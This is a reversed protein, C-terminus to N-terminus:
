SELEWGVLWRLLASVDAADVVGDGNMDVLRKDWEALEFGAHGAVHRAVWVVDASSVSEGRNTIAGLRLWQATVVMNELVVGFDVDWGDFIWGSRVVEPAFAAGYRPVAQETEGGCIRTGGNLHFIVTYDQRTKNLNFYDWGDDDVVQVPFNSDANTGDGLQGYWNYGWTWVTGDNKVAVTHRWGASVEAVGSIGVVQVPTSSDYYTGDGLQGGWNIGWAWVTGDGKLAVSYSGGATIATVEYLGVVQVPMLRNDFTGDGLQGMSNYGWAWATGDNKVAVTHYYGASIATVGDLGVAQVPTRSENTTGDGLEGYWNAGWAWVTGDNKVAVSHSDGAAIAIVDTLDMVQVPIDSQHIYAGNGLQGYNNSGWAWVTGDDKLAVTHHAGAAVAIVNRIDMVQAPMDQSYHAGDALGLQGHWNAGWTWVTGDDRLAVTHEGGAAIAKISRLDAAQVPMNSNNTYVEGGLGLQGQLNAGWTWVTGDNKVAVTHEGGASVTAGLKITSTALNLFSGNRILVPTSSDHTTGDGLQGDWNHGWAWVTGDNRVAVTHHAGASVATIDRLEELEVPTYGHPNVGGFMNDGWAWVEGNGKLAATHQRGASIATVGGLDPVQTPTAVFYAYSDLEYGLQGHGNNGWTWVTGDSKVAATHEYGASVATAHSIGGVQVPIPSDYVGDLGIQGYGNYGWAWVTGDSKLAVTHGEGASIATVDYLGYVHSPYRASYYNDEGLGLQGRGNDGWALVDGYETIAVTHNRGAAIAKIDHLGMIQVPVLSDVYEVYDLHGYVSAGWAWVTGDNKLAVTHREGAAIEKVNDIGVRVPIPSHETTGIGLQGDWNGGWAWVTGDNKLAVTHSSGAAVMPRTSSTSSGLTLLGTDYASIVQAPTSRHTTTGDGLQGGDNEGWAWVTGDKKVAITHWEGVAIATVDSISTVEIPTNSGWVSESGIGLEGNFNSGWAWLTGDNKVAMTHSNGLSIEAINDLGVVQVPSHRNTSTGDGLKGSWNAGWAWATGDDNIIAAASDRAASVARVDSLGVVQVPTHRTATTGDGLQGYSNKGWAWATGDSKVALSYDASAAIATVNYLDAVQVPTYRSYNTGDGTGLQGDWNSGWAWVTGDNTLALTHSDGAAIATVGYLGGVQVPTLSQISMGSNTGLQGSSNWGWAWVTGDSKLAASHQNSVAISTVNHLGVAQVPTLRDTTTGDGLQGQENWGWAWVTGDKKLAVTHGGSTAVMPKTGTSPPSLETGGLNLFGEGYQGLVQVPTNSNDGIGGNGLQGDWNVGWAWVTGDSKLAVSHYMGASIAAADSLRAVRAPYHKESYTGDGLQGYGNWGWAWVTGDDKLAVTNQWNASIATVNSLYAVQVPAASGSLTDEGNGLQGCSNNGWVWVTGDNKLAVTHEYAASVATVDSIEIQVPIYNHSYNANNSQAYLDEGWIWVTGDNKVAATYREGASIAKVDSLGHVQVPTLSREGTGDGLQGNGNHGWAWVTGDNKLVVTHERGAAIAVVDSICDLQVPTSHRDNYTGLGLQGYTNDGWAWLTGDDKLAISHNIGATIATINDLGYVQM